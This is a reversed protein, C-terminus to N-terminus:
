TEIASVVVTGHADERREPACAPRAGRAVAAAYAEEADAVEFAVDRIGDGHRAQHRVVDHDARLGSTVVFRLDGQELVYSARHRAGTEPGAYATLRLGFVTRYLHAAQKANGVWFEIADYGRITLASTM